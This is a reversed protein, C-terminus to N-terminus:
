KTPTRLTLDIAGGKPPVEVRLLTSEPSTYSSPIAQKKPQESPLGIAPTPTSDDAKQVPLDIPFMPETVIVRYAGPPVGPRDRTAGPRVALLTYNGDADTNGGAGQGPTEKEPIFKVTKGALPKGDLTVRGHVPVLQPGSEGCGAAFLVVSLVVLTSRRM